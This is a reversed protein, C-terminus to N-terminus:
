KIKEEFWEVITGMRRKFSGPINVKWKLVQKVEPESKIQALAYLIIKDDAEHILFNVREEGADLAKILKYVTLKEENEMQLWITKDTSKTILKFYNAGFTTDDQFYRHNELEPMKTSVPDDIKKNKENVFYSKEILPYMKGRNHSMYEIGAQQSFARFNNLIYLMMEGEPVDPKDIIFLMEVCLEPDYDRLDAMLDQTFDTSSPLLELGDYYNVRPRDAYKGSTINVLDDETLGPVLEIWNQAFVQLASLLLGLLLVKRM